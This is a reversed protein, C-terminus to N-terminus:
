QLGLSNSCFTIANMLRFGESINIRRAMSNEVCQTFDQVCEELIFVNNKSCYYRSIEKSSVSYTNTFERGVVPGTVSVQANLSYSLSLISTILFTKM